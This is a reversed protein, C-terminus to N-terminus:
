LGRWMGRPAEHHRDATTFGLGTGVIGLVTIPRLLLQRSHIALEGVGNRALLTLWWRWRRSLFCFSSRPTSTTKIRTLHRIGGPDIASAAVRSSSKLDLRIPVLCAGLGRWLLECTGVVQGSLIPLALNRSRWWGRSHLQFHVSAPEDRLRRQRGQDSRAIDHPLRLFNSSRRGRRCSSRAGM